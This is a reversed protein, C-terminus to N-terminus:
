TGLLHLHEPLAVVLNRNPLTLPVLSSEIVCYGDLIELDLRFLLFSRAGIGFMVIMTLLASHRGCTTM